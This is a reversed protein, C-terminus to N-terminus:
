YTRVCDAFVEETQKELRVIEEITLNDSIAFGERIAFRDSVDKM